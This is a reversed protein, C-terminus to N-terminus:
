VHTRPMKDLISSYVLFSELKDFSGCEKSMEKFNINLFVKKWVTGLQKKLGAEEKISLPDAQCFPKPTVICPTDSVMPFQPRRLPTAGAPATPAEGQSSLLAGEM